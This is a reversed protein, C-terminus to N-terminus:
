YGSGVRQTGIHDCWVGSDRAGWYGFTIEPRKQRLTIGFRGESEAGEPWLEELLQRRYLTPNTTFNLTAELWHRGATDAHDAWAEPHQEVIGGARRESDNWPQRRLALQVLHPRQELVDRMADLDVPRGIVFDDELHFIHPARSEARLTSWASRIAGGFGRREAPQVHHFNPFRRALQRHHASDGSDDHMWLETIPGVLMDLAATVADDVTDRGDTMVLLAIM